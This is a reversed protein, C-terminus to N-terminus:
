VGPDPLGAPAMFWGPDLGDRRLDTLRFRPGFPLFGEGALMSILTDAYAAAFGEPAPLPRGARAQLMALAAALQRPLFDYLDADRAGAAGDSTGVLHLGRAAGGDLRRSRVVLYPGQGLDLGPLFLVGGLDALFEPNILALLWCVDDPTCAYARASGPPAVILCLTRQHVERFLRIRNPRDM